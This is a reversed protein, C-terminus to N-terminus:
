SRKRMSRRSFKLLSQKMQPILQQEREKAIEDGWRDFYRSATANSVGAHKAAAGPSMSQEIFLKRLLEIKEPPLRM